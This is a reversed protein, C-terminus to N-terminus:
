RSLMKNAVQKLERTIIKGSANIPLSDMLLIFEPQKFDALKGKCFSRIEDPDPKEGPVPVICACIREGLRDDDVGVAKIASVGPFEHLVSEIEGPNIKEGGRVIMEKTRGTITLYGDPRITGLDGTKLWGDETFAAATEDPLKYYGKMTNYGRVQIEGEEDNGLIRGDDISAVRAEVFPILKGVTVTKLEHSDDYDSFTISPSCETQGYSMQLRTMGLESCIREYVAPKVTTGAIIGNDLSSMDLESRLPSEMFKIFMTPVGCFVNIRNESIAMMARKTNFFPLIFLEAGSVVHALFGASFGFCHFLPLALLVRDSECWHMAEKAAGAVNMVAYHTLLVGKVKASTTGSTFAMCFDDQPSVEEKISILREREEGELRPLSIRGEEDLIESMTLYGRPGFSENDFADIVDSMGYDMDWEGCCLWDVDAYSCTGTLEPLTFRPSILVSVAGLKGAALFFVIWAASNQGWLGVHSGKRVGKGYLMMAVSDSLEDLEEFTYSQGLYNIATKNPTKQRRESFMKGLTLERLEM